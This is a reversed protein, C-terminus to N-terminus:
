PMLDSGPEDPREDPRQNLLLWYMGLTAVAESFNDFNVPKVIYSNVGLEYSRVIDSEEGSSTLVVV